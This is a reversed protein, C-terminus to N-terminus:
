YRPISERETMRLWTVVRGVDESPLRFYLYKLGHIYSQDKYMQIDSIGSRSLFVAGMRHEPTM